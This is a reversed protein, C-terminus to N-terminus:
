ICSSYSSNKEEYKLKKLSQIVSMIKVEKIRKIKKNSISSNLPKNINKKNLYKTRIILKNDLNFIKATQKAFAYRSIKINSSINFIGTKKTYNISLLFNFCM